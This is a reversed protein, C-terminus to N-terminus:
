AARPLARPRRALRGARAPVRRLRHSARPRCRGRKWSTGVQTRFGFEYGIPMMVGASFAAAFAYRQRQVQEDGGSDAMLRTTDHTEPFSISPAIGRFREQQELAWPERFDWWKSSNFFYDFGAQKLALVDEV